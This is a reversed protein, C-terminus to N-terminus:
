IAMPHPRIAAHAQPEISSLFDMVAPHTKIHQPTIPQRLFLGELHTARSLAVYLQGEAFTGGDALDIVCPALTQGQAKHITLAWAHTLPLQTFSGAVEAVPLQDAGLSYRTSEWTVPEVRHVEGQQPGNSLKVEAWNTGCKQVVGLSGNVWRGQSDNRTFLVRAGAKLILEAPTTLGTGEMKGKTTAIFTYPLGPLRELETQNIADVTRNRAALLIADTPAPATARQNLERLQSPSLTGHRVANLLDIFGRESQRFVQTFSITGFNGEAYAQASFFFPTAFQLEYASRELQTIVPPLQCLDGVLLMQVGGFPKGKHPGYRRLFQDIAEFVDARVMSIEDIVLLQLQSYLKPNRPKHWDETNGQMLKTKLGFFSHITQGGVQLAAMGTPALVVPKKHALQQRAWRLFTSKGTGAKGLVLLNENENLSQLATQFEATVSIKQLGGTPAKVVPKAPKPPPIRRKPDTAYTPPLAGLTILKLVMARPTRGMQGALVKLDDTPTPSQTATAHCALLAAIEDERWPKGAQALATPETEPAPEALLDDYPPYQLVGMQQLRSEIAGISRGHALALDPIAKGQRLAALLEAEEADSWRKPAPRPTAEVEM